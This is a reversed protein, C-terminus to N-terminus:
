VLFIAAYPELDEDPPLEGHSRRDAEFPAALTLAPVLYDAAQPAGELVLVPLQAETRVVFHYVNDRAMKDTGTIRVSGANAGRRLDRLTFPIELSENGFFPEVRSKDVRRGNLYLDLQVEEAPGHRRVTVVMETSGGARIVPDALRVDEISLNFEPEVSVNTVVLRPRGAGVLASRVEEWLGLDDPHWDAAQMDSLVWIRGGGTAGMREAAQLIARPVNATGDTPTSEEIDARVDARSVLPAAFPTDLEQRITGSMARTGPPLTDLTGAALNRAEEFATGSPGQATMSASSDLLVAVQRGGGLLAAIRGQLLPQALALLAFALLLCRMAMLLLQQLRARRVARRETTLLFDMAAWRVRRYRIRNLLHIIIPAAVLPALWLFAPNAFNM